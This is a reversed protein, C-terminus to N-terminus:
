EITRRLRIRGHDKTFHAFRQLKKQEPIRDWWQNFAERSMGQKTKKVRKKVPAVGSRSIYMRVSRTSYGTQEAIERIKLGSRYLDVTRKQKEQSVMIRNWALGQNTRVRGNTM